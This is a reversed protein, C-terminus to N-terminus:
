GIFPPVAIEGSAIPVVHGSVTAVTAVGVAATVTCELLSPRHMEIGQHVTYSSTKEFHVFSGSPFQLECRNEAKLNAAHPGVDSRDHGRAFVFELSQVFFAYRRAPPGHASFRLYLQRAYM